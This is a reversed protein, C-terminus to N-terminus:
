GHLRWYLTTSSLSGSLQHCFGSCQTTSSRSSPSSTGLTVLSSGSSPTVEDAFRLFLFWNHSPALQLIVLFLSLNEDVRGFSTFISFITSWEFMFNKEGRGFSCTKTEETQFSRAEKSTWGPCHYNFYDHMQMELKGRHLAICHPIKTCKYKWTANICYKQAKWIEGFDWRQLNSRVPRLCDSDCVNWFPGAFLNYFILHPQVWFRFFHRLIIVSEM